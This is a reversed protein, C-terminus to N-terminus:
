LAAQLESSHGRAAGAAHAPHAGLQVCHRSRDVRAPHPAHWKADHPRPRYHDLGTAGLRHARPGPGTWTFGFLLAPSVVALALVARAQHAVVAAHTYSYLGLTVMAPQVLWLLAEGAGALYIRVENLCGVALCVSLM